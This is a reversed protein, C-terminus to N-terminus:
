RCVLYQRSQLESTHEESRHDDHGSHHARLQHDRGAPCRRYDDAKGGAGSARSTGVSDFPSAGELEGGRPLNSRLGLVTAIHPKSRVRCSSYARSYSIHIATRCMGHIEGSWYKSWSSIDEVRWIYQAPTTVAM